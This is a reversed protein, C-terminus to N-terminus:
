TGLTYQDITKKHNGPKSLPLVLRMFHTICNHYIDQMYNKCDKPNNKKPGTGLSLCTCKYTVQYTNGMKWFTM